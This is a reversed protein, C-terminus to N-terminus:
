QLITDSKIGYLHCRVLLDVMNDIAVFWDITLDTISERLMELSISAGLFNLRFM